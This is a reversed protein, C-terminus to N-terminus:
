AATVEMLMRASSHNETVTEAQEPDMVHEMKLLLAEAHERLEAVQVTALWRKLTRQHVRITPVFRRDVDAEIAVLQNADLCASALATAASM